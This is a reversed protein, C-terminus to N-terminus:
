VIKNGRAFDDGAGGKAKVGQVVLFSEVPQQLTFIQIFGGAIVIM